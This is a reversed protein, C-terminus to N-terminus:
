SGWGCAGPATSRASPPRPLTAAPGSYNVNSLFNFMDGRIQLNAFDVTWTAPNRLVGNAANAKVFWPRSTPDGKLFELLQRAVKERGSMSPHTGDSPQLDERLYRPGDKRGKMGDAWLYPGWALWPRVPGKGAIQDAIVWKVAFAGEYAHPEPNLPTTAYGAYIRSSLYTIKLNPYRDNLNRLTDALYGQLRKAEAPFPRQLGIIAQKLWVVQVQKATVGAASLRQEVVNWFNAQPDATTDAAQGGQAGDVIALQPNLDSDAAALKQFVQFEQTTNSMGISLLVIKGDIPAIRRAIELGAKLHAPPPTNGGGPYLGGEEGKYTGKLETLPVLGTSERSPNQQMFEQQRQANVSKVFEREEATVQEGRRQKLMIERVKRNEDERQDQAPVLPALLALVLFWRAYKM